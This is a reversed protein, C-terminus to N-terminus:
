DIRNFNVMKMLITKIERNSLEVQGSTQPHYPTAVKDKVGYKALLNEFPRNHADKFLSSWYFGSQLVKM